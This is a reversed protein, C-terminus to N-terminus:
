CSMTSRNGPMEVSETLHAKLTFPLLCQYEVIVLLSLYKILTEFVFLFTSVFDLDKKLVTETILRNNITTFKPLQM